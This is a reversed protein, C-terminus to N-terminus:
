GTREVGEQHLQEIVQLTRRLAKAGANKAPGVKGVVPLDRPVKIRMIVEKRARLAVSDKHKNVFSVLAEGSLRKPLGFRCMVGDPARIIATIGCRTALIRLRTIQLLNEVSGPLPGFRDRLEDRMDEVAGPLRMMALRRYLDVKHGVESVYSDPLFADVPLEIVAQADEEDPRTGRLEAVAEQLLQIYLDLGVAAMFGHQEAGLLNGMGRIELDRMAIKFGAGLETFQRIADLRKEAVETLVKDRRYTFLAYALRSSRGVRGRLQYLQALGLHDADEVILTNVNPMDLGSEIITTCVLIDYEHELFSIMVQELQDEPMQGHGIAIRAEPVLQALRAAVREISRVQNHVYFIQGGRGLERLIADRVLEDTHEVVYTQVPFRDEPPTEILSMDRVGAMAMHLTRPIPTASLTLVDVTKRYQKIREKQAVGFRHEEDIILLGLDHFRIDESLLRHTGIVIDVRGTRLGTATRKQQAPSRFRSMLEITAAADAFRERFTNYHQQALITTPVLVAVQKGDMVAKFAARIAVETKGYGVDGCLLRDMPKAKQMDAKIETVSRLQDPTEDYAFSEEFELQWPGDAPYAHGTAVERTAYLEILEQAMQRVSERVRNKTRAWETGGLKNIRPEQADGGIYRQILEVQDTPVYLRDEGAYQLHLYDKRVGEVELSVVGLYRGIGHNVHVVYDGVKLDLYSSIRQGARYARQRPRRMPRASIENETIVALNLAPIVFGSELSRSLVYVSPALPDLADGGGRETVVIGEAGLADAIRTARGASALQLVVIRGEGRLRRIEATLLGWQGHFGAMPRATLAVLGGPQGVGARRLILSFHLLRQERAKALLHDYDWVTEIQRALAGGSAILQEFRQAQMAVLGDATEKLRSPEDWAVLCREPLYDFLTVADPYFFRFYAELGHYDGGALRELHEGVREELKSAAEDLGAHRLNAASRALDASIGALAPARRAPAPVFESAPGITIHELGTQSRQSVPDFRRLSEIQDGFFEARVPETAAFPYVDLVGGRVAFSGPADVTPVREYGAGALTAALDALEYHGGPALAITRDRLEGSPPLMRALAGVSAVIILGGQTGQDVLLSQLVRLRGVALDHGQALVDYPLIELSPLQLVTTAPLLTTLDNAVREAQQASAVVYVCPWGGLQRLLGATLYTRESGSLGYALRSGPEREFAAALSLFEPAQHWLALLPALPDDASSTQPAIDSM